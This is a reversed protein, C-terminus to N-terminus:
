CRLNSTLDLMRTKLILFSNGIVISRFLNFGIYFSFSNFILVLLLGVDPPSQSHRPSDVTHKKRITNNIM